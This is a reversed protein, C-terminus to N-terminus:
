ILGTKKLLLFEKEFNPTFVGKGLQKEIQNKTWFRAETVEDSHV